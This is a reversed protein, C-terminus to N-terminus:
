TFWNDRICRVSQYTDKATIFSDGGGNFYIVWSNVGNPQYTEVGWYGQVWEHSKFLSYYNNLSSDDRNVIYYIENIKPVRWDSKDDLVLRECYYRKWYFIM